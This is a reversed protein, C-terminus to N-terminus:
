ARLLGDRRWGEILFDWFDRKNGLNRRILEWDRVIDALSVYRWVDAFRAERMVRAAWIGREISDESALHGKLEDESIRVGDWWLFYPREIM